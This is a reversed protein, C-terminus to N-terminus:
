CTVAEAVFEAAHAAVNWVRYGPYAFARVVGGNRTVECLAYETDTYFARVALGEAAPITWFAMRQVHGTVPESM